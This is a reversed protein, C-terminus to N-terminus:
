RKFPLVAEYEARTNGTPSRYGQTTYYHHMVIDGQQEVNYSSFPAGPKLNYEYSKLLAATVLNVGHQHQWVHTMEHMFIGKAVIADKGTVASFDDFYLDSNKHFYINGNPSMVRDKGQFAFWTKRYIKVKSYDVEDGFTGKAMKIEGETLSRSQGAKLSRSGNADFGHSGENFMQVFAGSVAGNAFKGGGIASATGGVVAAAAVRGAGGGPAGDIFGSSAAASSFFGAYFGHRFEGGTAETLGGQALGHAAAKLEWGWKGAKAMTGIGHAIGASIGGVIGGILGAKFADGISGGNLLSGAFSSGFGFAAGAIIAQGLTLSAAGAAGFMAGIGGAFGLPTFAALAAGATVVGIVVIAVIKLADKLSFFGTPDTAGLPNNGVYSYRNYAQADGANEVFPDASLFRGLTPDYVRGNM